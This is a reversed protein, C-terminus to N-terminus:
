LGNLEVLASALMPVVALLVFAPLVGGILPFLLRLPLRRAASELAHRRELRAEAVLVALGSAAPAGDREVAGVLRSLGSLSPYQGRALGEVEASLTAGGEVRIMLQAISQALEGALWPGVESFARRLSVGSHLTLELLVILHAAEQRSSHARKRRVQLEALRRGMLVLLSGAAGWPPWLVAGLLATGLLVVPPRPALCARRQWLASAPVLWAAVAVAHLVVLTM